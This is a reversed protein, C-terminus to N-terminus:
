GGLVEAIREEPGTWGEPKVADVVGEGGRKAQVGIKKQMNCDHVAAFSRRIQDATLGMRYLFGISFYLNDLIADVAGIVDAQDHAQVFEYMEEKVAKVAYTLEKESLLGIERPEINLARQNFEIVQEVIDTLDANSHVKTDM